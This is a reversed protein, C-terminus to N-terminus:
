SCLLCYPLKLVPLGGECASCLFVGEQNCGVCRAPFLLEVAASAVRGAAHRLAMYDFVVSKIPRM